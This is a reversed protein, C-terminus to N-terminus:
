RANATTTLATTASSARIRAQYGSLTRTAASMQRARSTASSVCFNGSHCLLLRPHSAPLLQAPVAEVEAAVAADAAVAAQVEAVAGVSASVAEAQRQQATTPPAEESRHRLFPPAAVPTASAPASRAAQELTKQAVLTTDVKSLLGSLFDIWSATASTTAVGKARSASVRTSLLSTFRLEDAQTARQKAIHVMMPSTPYTMARLQANALVVKM